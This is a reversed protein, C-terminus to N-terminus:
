LRQSGMAMIGRKHPGATIRISTSKIYPITIKFVMTLYKVLKNLRMFSYHRQKRNRLILESGSKTKSISRLMKISNLVRNSKRSRRRNIILLHSNLTM